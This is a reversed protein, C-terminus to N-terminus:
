KSERMSFFWVDNTYGFSDYKLDMNFQFEATQPVINTGYGGMVVIHEDGVQGLVCLGLLSRRTPTSQSTPAIGQWELTLGDLKHVDNFYVSGSEPTFLHGGFQYIHRNQVVGIGVDSCPPPIDSPSKSTARRQKWQCTLLNFCEILDPPCTITGGKEERAPAAGGWLLMEHGIVAAAHGGRSPPCASSM